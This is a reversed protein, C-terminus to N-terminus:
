ASTKIMRCLQLSIPQLKHCLSNFILFRGLQSTRYLSARSQIELKVEALPTPRISQTCAGDVSKKSVTSSRSATRSLVSVLRNTASHMDLQKSVCQHEVLLQGVTEIPYRLMRFQIFQYDHVAFQWTLAHCTPSAM